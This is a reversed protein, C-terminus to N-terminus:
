LDGRHALEAGIEEILIRLDPCPVEGELSDIVTNAAIIIAILADESLLYGPLHIIM